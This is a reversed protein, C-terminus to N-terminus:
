NPLKHVNNCNGRPGGTPKHTM